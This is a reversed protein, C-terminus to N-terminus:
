STPSAPAGTLECTRLPISRAPQKAYWTVVLKSCTYCAPPACRQKKRQRDGAGAAIRAYLVHELERAAWEPPDCLGRFCRGLRATQAARQGGSEESPPAAAATATYAAPSPHEQLLAQWARKCRVARERVAESVRSSKKGLRSVLVGVPVASLDELSPRLQLLLDLLLLLAPQTESPQRRPRTSRAPAEFCSARRLM